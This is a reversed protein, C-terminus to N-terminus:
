LVADAGAHRANTCRMAGHAMHWRDLGRAQLQQPWHSAPSTCSTHSRALSLYSGQAVDGTGRDIVQGHALVLLLLLM